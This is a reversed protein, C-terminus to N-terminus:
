GTAPTSSTPLPERAPGTTAAATMISILLIGSPILSEIKSGNALLVANIYNAQNIPGGLPQTEFLPSWHWNIKSSIVYFELFTIRTTIRFKEM